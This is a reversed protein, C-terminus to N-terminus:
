QANRVDVFFHEPMSSSPKAEGACNTLAETVRAPDVGAEGAMKYLRIAESQMGNAHYTQALRFLAPGNGKDLLVAQQLEIVEGAADKQRKALEAFRMRDISSYPDYGLGQVLNNLSEESQPLFKIAMSTHLLQMATPPDASTSLGFYSLALKERLGETNNKLVAATYWIVANPFDGAKLYKAATPELKDALNPQAALASATFSTASQGAQSSQMGGYTGSGYISNPLANYNQPVPSFPMVIPNNITGPFGSAYPAVSSPSGYNFGPVYPTIGSSYPSYVGSGGYSSGYPSTKTGMEGTYPNVNGKTSWNNWFNGDPSSRMHPRVYTGDKRYYGRVSVSKAYVPVALCLCLILTFLNGSVVRKLM